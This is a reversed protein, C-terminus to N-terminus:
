SGRYLSTTRKTRREPTPMPQARQLISHSPLNLLPSVCNKLCLWTQGAVQTLLKCEGRILSSDLNNLQREFDDWFHKGAERAATFPYHSQTQGPFRCSNPGLWINRTRGNRLKFTTKDAKNRNLILSVCKPLQLTLDLDACLKSVDHVAKARDEKLSSIVNLYGGLKWKTYNQFTVSHCKVPPPAPPSDVQWQWTGCDM